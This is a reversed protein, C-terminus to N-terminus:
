AASEVDELGLMQILTQGDPQRECHAKMRRRLNQEHEQERSAQVRNQQATMSDIDFGATGMGMGRRKTIMRLSKGTMM